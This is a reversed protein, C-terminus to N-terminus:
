KFHTGASHRQDDKIEMGKSICSRFKHHINLSINVARKRFTLAPQRRHNIASPDHPCMNNTKIYHM